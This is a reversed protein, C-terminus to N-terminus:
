IILNNEFVLRVDAPLELKLFEDYLEINEIEAIVGAACAEVVSAFVPVNYLNWESEPVELGGNSFVRGISLFHRVEANVISRFPQVAGFDALVRLYINEARYEDQIASNLIILVEPTLPESPTVSDSLNSCSILVALLMSLAAVKMIVTKM